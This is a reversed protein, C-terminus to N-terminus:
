APRQNQLYAPSAIFVTPRSPDLTALFQRATAREPDFIRMPAPFPGFRDWKAVWARYAERNLRDLFDGTM